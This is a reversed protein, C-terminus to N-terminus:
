GKEKEGVRKGEGKMEVLFSDIKASSDNFLFWKPKDHEKQHHHMTNIFYPVKLIWWKIFLWHTFSAKLLHFQVKRIVFKTKNWEGKEGQVTHM